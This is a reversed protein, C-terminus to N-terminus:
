ANLQATLNKLETSIAVVEGVVQSNKESIGYTDNAHASVEESIASITSISDIIESNASSLHEIIESLYRSNDAIDASNREINKFSEETKAASDHRQCM